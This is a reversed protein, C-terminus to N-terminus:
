YIKLRDEPKIYMDDGQKVGYAKYFEEFQQVVANARVKGPSHSDLQLLQETYADSSKIRWVKAWSEFFAKYDPSKEKNLIDLMCSIATIDAINESVTLDGNVNKGPLVEIQSYFSRVKKTNEEFKTYDQEKWWNAVNGKEDFHSGNTDFAHSIEHAIVAGIGGLNAERSQNIDYYPAELIAAPFTIDNASPNYCANVTQPSILFTTKDVLQNLSKVQNAFSWDAINFVNEVLSSGEEISKIDLETYDMWQDPYGVKITMTDLKKIANAKTEPSMWEVKQLKEKYNAIIEKVLAEVDEKEEKSFTKEVYLRGIEDSFIGSIVNLAQEERSTEGEVGYLTATLEKNANEFKEGLLTATSYLFRIELADKIIDVNEKTYIKDLAKLWEPEQLVVKKAKDFGMNKLMASPKLNPALQDLQELTYVNYIKDYINPDVTSEDQGIISPALMSDLKFANDIKKKAETESYGYLVTIKNLYTNLATKMARSMETDKTYYDSNSLFLGTSNIYVCNKTSDKLDAGVGVNFLGTNQQIRLNNLLKTIGSIDKAAKIEDMYPKIPNIGEKNREEVNLYNNYLNLMKKEASNAKYQDQNEFIQKFIGDLQVRCKDQLEDFTSISPYGPKIVAEQLWKENVATYFDDQIRVQSKSAVTTQEAAMLQVSSFTMVVALLVLSIKQRAKKILKM